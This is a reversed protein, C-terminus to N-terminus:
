ARSAPLHHRTNVVGIRGGGVRLRQLIELVAGVPEHQDADTRDAGMAIPQHRVRDCAHEITHQEIGADRDLEIQARLGLVQRERKDRQDFLPADCRGREVDPETEIREARAGCRRGGAGM